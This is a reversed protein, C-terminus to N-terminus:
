SPRGESQSTCSGSTSRSPPGETGPWWASHRCSGPTATAARAESYARPYVEFTWRQQNKLDIPPLAVTHLRRLAGSRRDEEGRGGLAGGRARQLAAAGGRRIGLDPVGHAGQLRLAPRLRRRLRIWASNPFYHDMMEKWLRVPLRFEAEKEWSIRAVQLGVGEGAYFVTGSFLFELPVEGDDLAHFYKAAVVELDYTCPVPMDVVTSGSFPPVQLVTHTWLLSRLTEGWRHPEGFLELLMEQEAADYHRQTAAIRIQTNLAVSRIPEEGGNEIRLKFLLSPVAAFSLVEADVVEFNLDPMSDHKRLRMEELAPQVLAIFAEKRSGIRGKKGIQEDNYFYGSGILWFLKDVNYPTVGVNRAVRAVAKFVEYDSTGLPCLGLAPFIAKVHVDPKSFNEYGLQMLFDCALAFGIGYIEQAVLMPLAPRAREDEDFFDVWDYFDKASGFQSLFRAGSLITRCYIPWLGKSTQNINGKPELQVMIAEFVERESAYKELVRAPEFECLVPKLERVGGIAGGIM